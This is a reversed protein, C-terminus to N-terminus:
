SALSQERTFWENAFEAPTRWGHASHPRNINYDIRFDELLVKAEFITDFIQGNLMEERLRGNFSEVFGNQWPSGPDIFLSGTGNFRCWDAVAYAIFEPGHDFRVFRPARREKALRDLVRVVHDADISRSVEIALSERTYEDVVNLLKILRGDASQDYQFDLAWLVDPAIPCMAGVHVGIGRLPRKRKRYPVKLGEDRWIRQLKKHNVDFGAERAAWLARRWGWRPREQAFTRLFARLDDDSPPPPALRQTSRAQGIV